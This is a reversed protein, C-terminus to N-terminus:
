DGVLPKLIDLIYIPINCVETWLCVECMMYFYIFLGQIFLILVFSGIPEM